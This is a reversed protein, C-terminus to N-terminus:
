TSSHLPRHFGRGDEASEEDEVEEEEPGLGDDDDDSSSSERDEVEDGEGEFEDEDKARPVTAQIASVAEEECDTDLYPTPETARISSM